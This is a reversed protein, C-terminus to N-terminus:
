CLRALLCVPVYFSLQLSSISYLELPWQYGEVPMGQLIRRRDAQHSQRVGEISDSVKLLQPSHALGSWEKPSLLNANPTTLKKYRRCAQPAATILFPALHGNM